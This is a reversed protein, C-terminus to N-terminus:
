HCGNGQWGVWHHYQPALPISSICRGCCLLDFCASFVQMTYLYHMAWVQALAEAGTSSAPVKM